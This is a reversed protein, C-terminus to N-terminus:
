YKVISQLKIANAKRSIYKSVPVQDFSHLAYWFSKMHRDHRGEEKLIERTPKLHSPTQFKKRVYNANSILYFKSLIHVNSEITMDLDNFLGNSCFINFTVPIVKWKRNIKMTYTSIGKITMIAELHPFQYYIIKISFPNTSFSLIMYHLMVHPENNMRLLYEEIKMTHGCKKRKYLAQPYLIMLKSDKICLNQLLIYMVVFSFRMCGVQTQQRLIIRLYKRGNKTTLHAVNLSFIVKCICLFLWIYIKLWVYLVGQLKALIFKQIEKGSKYFLTM